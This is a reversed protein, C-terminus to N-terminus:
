QKKISVIYPDTYKVVVSTGSELDQKAANSNMTLKKGKPGKVILVGNAPDYSIITVVAKYVKLTTGASAKPPTATEDLKAWPNKKDEATAKKAELAASAYYEAKVKNGVALEGLNTVAKDVAFNVENGGGKLTIEGAGANIATVKGTFTGSKWNLEGAALCISQVCLVAFLVLITGAIRGKM